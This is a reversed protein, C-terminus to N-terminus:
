KSGALVALLHNLLLPQRASTMTLTNLQRIHRAHAFLVTVCRLRHMLGHQRRLLRTEVIARGLVEPLLPRTTRARAAALVQVACHRGVQVVARVYGFLREIRRAYRVCVVLSHCVLLGQALQLDLRVFVILLDIRLPQALLCSSYQGNVRGDHALVIQVRGLLRGLVELTAEHGATCRLLGLQRQQM